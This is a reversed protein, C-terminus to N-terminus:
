CVGSLIDNTDNYVSLNNHFLDVAYGLDMSAQYTSFYHLKDGYTNNMIQSCEQYRNPTTPPPCDLPNSFGTGRHDPIYLDFTDDLFNMWPVSIGYLSAGSFGPGGQLMWFAGNGNTNNPHFGSFVRSIFYDITEIIDNDSINVSNNILDLDWDWDWNLPVQLKYM